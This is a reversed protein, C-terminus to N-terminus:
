SGKHQDVFSMLLVSLIGLLLAAAYAAVYMREDMTRYIFVSATETRGQIGGGIVLVAGFEGLARAITLTIGYFFGWKITPFTIRSFIQWRAAGLTAAANEQQRDLMEIVPILERIMFPLTVFLTALILGPIAFAVQLDLFKLLPSLVGNRGFVLLLMYGVVVPSIAFPLDILSNFFAKGRFQHRVMVWAVMMGFVAHIAAVILSILITLGFARLIEPQQFTEVVAATGDQFVGKILAALPALILVGAYLFVIFILIRRNM